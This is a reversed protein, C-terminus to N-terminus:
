KRYDTEFRYEGSGINFVAYNGEMRQFAIGPIGSVPKGSETIHKDSAAPLWVEATTNAPIRIQLQFRSGAIKWSSTIPGRVSLYSGQAYTLDGAPQPKIIIKKFGPAGPNIGLLSRYFWENVSGFMPHDQSYVNDSYAWTEWLTTAGHDIMYGWGPFTRQDAIRYAVDNRDERRLLDLLMKTGFIGTTLHVDHRDINDLLIDLSKKKEQGVVLGYWLGFAQASQSASDFKGTGATYFRRIIAQRIRNELAGYREADAKKGLLKAFAAILKVHHYYFASATFAKSPKDLSEHDGLDADSLYNETHERLFEVERRFAKYYQAILRKDGYFNYLQEMLYPFSLQFGMPGSHDGPGSDAIGVYPATETFGGGSRQDNVDDQLTKRYFNAMNFDFMFANCTCFLDGGYGFKERAPCDSQVSFMNNRFTWRINRSLRNFMPNSSGFTGAPEVDASMCLGEIDQLSPKGPWGSVEIYRFGHFTFSPAWTEHGKGKLTYRDEQWAIRPAGAGGNGNKIQGAVSTMVNINGDKYKDEGYRLVITTGQPGHVHIRAVGSFNQGMDFVYIGPKPEAMSVPRIVKIIKVPPQTQVTLKGSPGKVTVADKQGKFAKTGPVAWGPQELRADYHEGLYVSNRIVPGPMTKWGKDTVLTQVTGDTFVIRLQAKVCPMGTTLADRLNRSGWMRLPLPNYWGNGLMIGMANAGHHVAATVDYVSYLLQKSYNTWGPDLVHDGIKRGNIRAEYYGLGCIYLRASAVKKGTYFVRRFLPMPDDQYFDEDKTFSKRGDGIWLAKWDGAHLMATEFWQPSSWPSANGDQDYVRVRWFYRTFSQLPKGNYEIHLSRDTTVKGTAWMNGKLQLIAAKDDSVILEYASQRRNRGESVLTWSLGPRPADIGM